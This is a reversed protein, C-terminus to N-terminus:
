DIQSYRTELQSSKSNVLEHILRAIAADQLHAFSIPHMKTNFVMGKLLLQCANLHWYIYFQSIYRDTFLNEAPYRLSLELALKLWKCKFSFPLHISFQTYMPSKCICILSNDQVLVCSIYNQCSCRSTVAQKHSFHHKQLVM